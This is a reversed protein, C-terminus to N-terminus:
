QVDEKINDRKVTADGARPFFGSAIDKYGFFLTNCRPLFSVAQIIFFLRDERKGAKM